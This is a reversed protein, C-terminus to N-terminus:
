TPSNAQLDPLIETEARDPLWRVAGDKGPTLSAPSKIKLEGKVERACLGGNEFIEGRRIDDM